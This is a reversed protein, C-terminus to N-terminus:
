FIYILFTLFLLDNMVMIKMWVMFKMMWDKMIMKIIVIIM